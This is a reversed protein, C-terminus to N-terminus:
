NDRATRALLDIGLTLVFIASGIIFLLRYDGGTQALVFTLGYAGAAQLLAFGTTAMSWAGQVAMPDHPLLEHIRGLALPVVGPVCAGIIVSSVVLALPATNLAPLLVAVAQVVFALRLTPGFGIRDAIRGTLIPGIVAGLGFLVWYNAGTTLGQGLGRAIFDVLFLMHPVLGAANLAYEAYLARLQVTPHLSHTHGPAPRAPLATPWGTWALLTLLLSLIGLGNWAETLGHRLLLPVLTGSAAIGLGVGAFIAGSALGRRQASVHPLVIPAALVMLAGGAIGSLLRWLFFWTFSIPIACAFFSATALLMMARLLLPVSFRTALPRGLLAGALYGALNAAGLYAATSSSFWHAAIIAPLLPTYAFRALGIGVLTACGGSLTARWEALDHVSPEM